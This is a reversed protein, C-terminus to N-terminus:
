LDVLPNFDLEDSTLIEIEESWGAKLSFTITHTDKTAFGQNNRDSFFPTSEIQIGRYQADATVEVLAIRGGELFLYVTLNKECTIAKMAREVAPSLGKFTATFVSPNVGENEEIGNRTSNDGGGTTIADGATITPDADILPSVVVKTDDTAALLAQWDALLKPDTPTGAGTDFLNGGRQFALRQIQKLNFNCDDQPIETLASPAPCQCDM